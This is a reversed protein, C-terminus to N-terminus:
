LFCCPLSNSVSPESPDSNLKLFCVIVAKNQTILCPCYPYKHRQRSPIETAEAETHIHSLDLSQTTLPSHPLCTATGCCCSKHLCLNQSTWCNLGAPRFHAETLWLALDSRYCKRRSMEGLKEWKLVTCTFLLSFCDCYCHIVHHDWFLIFSYDWGWILYLNLPIIIIFKMVHTFCLKKKRILIFLLNSGPCM